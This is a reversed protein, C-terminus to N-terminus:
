RPEAHRRANHGYPRRTWHGKGAARDAAYRRRLRRAADASQKNAMATMVRLMARGDDTTLDLSGSFADWTIGHDRATEIVDESDYPDRALRDSNYVIAAGFKGARLDRMMTAWVPRVVRRTQRREGYQDTIWVTRLKWASEGDEVYLVADATMAASTGALAVTAGDPLGRRCAVSRVDARQRDIGQSQDTTGERVDDDALSLRVYLAFRPATRM